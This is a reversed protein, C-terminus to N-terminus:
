FDLAKEMFINKKAINKREKGDWRRSLNLNTLREIYPPSWSAGSTKNPLAVGFFCPPAIGRRGM